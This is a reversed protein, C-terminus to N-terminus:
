APRRAAFARRVRQSRLAAYGALVPVTPILGIALGLLVALGDATERTSRGSERASRSTAAISAAVADIQAAADRVEDGVFPVDEVAALADSTARLGESTEALAEGASTVTEGLEGLERAEATVVFALVIWTCLWALVALDALWITKRVHV